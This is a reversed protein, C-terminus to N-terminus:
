PKWRLSHVRWPSQELQWVGDCPEPATLGRECLDTEVAQSMRTRIRLPRDEEDNQYVRLVLGTGEEATKLATVRTRGELELLRGDPPMSGEHLSNSYVYIPHSFCFADRNLGYWDGTEAVGLGLEMQNVGHEPYRDPTHSARLLTVSLAGDHARYGYKCDTTLFLGPGEAPVPAAYLLAPVDHGLEPRDVYGGAVDCRVTRAEYAYPVHFQLMPTPQGQRGVEHWDVETSFRLVRSTADLIIKVRLTSARFSLRYLLAQRIPDEACVESEVFCSSNLDTVHGYTGIIWASYAGSDNEEVLRFCVPGRLLEKGAAKEVLSVLAMSSRSFAARLYPNELVLNEDTMKHVRPESYPEAYRAQAAPAVYYTAYGFAPVEAVFALKCFVHRWYDKNGHLVSFPIERKQSDYVSTMHMPLEWDWVTMEVTERRDYQTPNFLTYARVRGGSRSTQTMQFPTDSFAREQDSGKATGYGVGAGEAVSDPDVATGFASTDIKQGMAFLARNANGVCFGNTEQAMGLAAERTERVGSGPLIDHFHNFLVNKWARDYPVSVPECGALRSMALLAESDYLRDEGYRNAQKIRAQTTYCGTFVFNLERDAVPFSAKKGEVAQFFADVRGFTIEPMLPWAAMDLIREIDRRTPGGGHDGVGYVRLGCSVGNRRCFQPLYAAMDYTAPGLYWNPERLVLVESGSPARWRYLEETENGRCHYYYKVGGRALVEPVCRGHGFTDPEFDLALSDPDIGLLESLYKKTYLIHRVQSETNTMNKDPEVWTTAAVEWRGERVRQRIEPLMSPAYKEIIEYTSAQSQTFVYGPYERMLNLMTQFTDIVIGVTEDMGWQWNMDIHAHAACILRLSKATERYSALAAEAELADGKTLAGNDALRQELQALVAELRHTDMRNESLVGHLYRLQQLIRQAWYQGECKAALLNLRTMGDM